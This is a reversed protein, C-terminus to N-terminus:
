FKSNDQVTSLLLSNHFVDLKKTQVSSPSFPRLKHKVVMLAFISRQLVNTKHFCDCSHTAQLVFILNAMKEKTVSAAFFGATTFMVILEPFTKHVIDFKKMM